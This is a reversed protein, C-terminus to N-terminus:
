QSAEPSKTLLALVFLGSALWYLSPRNKERWDLYALAALLYFVTSLTNKQESVWAVSEVCVPHLAFLLAALLSVLRSAGLRGLAVAFLCASTAHLLINLLHYGLPADGWLGHEVWFASHLLPYYQETAGLEFWIRGLGSLSRLAPRTVYDSDNWIFGAGIAPFYAILTVLFIAAPWFPLARLYRSKPLPEAATSV